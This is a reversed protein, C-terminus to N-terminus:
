RARECFQSFRRSDEDHRDTQGRPVRSGCSPNEHFIVNSSKEFFRDLFNLNIEFRVLIFPAKYSSWHVNKIMDRENRRLVLFTEYLLQLSFWFVCKTSPLKKKGFIMGNILCYPFISYLPTPWLYCYPAHANFAPYWLSCVCMWFLYCKNSKWQLM